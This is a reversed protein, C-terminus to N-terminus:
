IARSLKELIPLLSQKNLYKILKTMLYFLSAMAFGKTVVALTKKSKAMLESIFNLVKQRRNMGDINLVM